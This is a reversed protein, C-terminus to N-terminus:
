TPPASPDFDIVGGRFPWLQAANPYGGSTKLLRRITLGPFTAGLFYKWTPKPTKIKGISTAAPITPDAWNYRMLLKLFDSPNAHTGERSLISTASSTDSPDVFGTEDLNALLNKDLGRAFDEDKTFAGIYPGFDADYISM